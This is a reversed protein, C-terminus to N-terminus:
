KNGRYARGKNCRENVKEVGKGYMYLMGLGTQGVPNGQLSFLLGNIMLHYNIALCIMDLTKLFIQCTNQEGNM